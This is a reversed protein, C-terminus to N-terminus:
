DAADAHAAFAMALAVNVSASRALLRAAIDPPLPEGARVFVLSGYLDSMFGYFLASQDPTLGNVTRM